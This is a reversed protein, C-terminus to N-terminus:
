KSFFTMRIFRARVINNYMDSGAKERLPTTNSIRPLLRPHLVTLWSSLQNACISEIEARGHRCLSHFAINITIYRKCGCGM